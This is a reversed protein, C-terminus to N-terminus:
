VNMHIYIYVYILDSSSTLYKKPFRPYRCPSGLIPRGLASSQKIVVLCITKRAPHYIYTYTYIYIYVYMHTFSYIIYAYIVIYTHLIYIYMFVMDITLCCNCCCNGRTSTALTCGARMRCLCSAFWVIMVRSAPKFCPKSYSCWTTVARPKCICMGYLARVVGCLNRSSLTSM